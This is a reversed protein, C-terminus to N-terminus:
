CCGNLSVQKGEQPLRERLSVFIVIEFKKDACLLPRLEYQLLNTVSLTFCNQVFKNMFQNLVSHMARRLRAKVM